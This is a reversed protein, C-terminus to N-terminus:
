TLQMWQQDGAPDQDPAKEVGPQEDKGVVGHMVAQHWPMPHDVLSDASYAEPEVCTQVVLSTFGIVPPM